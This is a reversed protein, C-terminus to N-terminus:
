EGLRKKEEWLMTALMIVGDDSMMRAADGSRRLAVNVDKPTVHADTGHVIKFITESSSIEKDADTINRAELIAALQYGIDTDSGLKDHGDIHIEAELDGIRRLARIQPREGTAREIDSCLQSFENWSLLLKGDIASRVTDLDCNSIVTFDKDLAAYRAKDAADREKECGSFESSAWFFTLIGAIILLALGFAKFFSAVPAVAIENSSKKSM